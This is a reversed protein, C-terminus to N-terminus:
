VLLTVWVNTNSPKSCITTCMTKTISVMKLICSQILNHQKILQTFCIITLGAASDEGGGGPSPDRKHKSWDSHHCWFHSVM